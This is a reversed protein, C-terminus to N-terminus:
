TVRDRPVAGRLVLVEELGDCGNVSGWWWGSVKGIQRWCQRNSCSCGALAEVRIERTEAAERNRAAPSAFSMALVCSDALRAM